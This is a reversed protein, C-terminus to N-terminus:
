PTHHNFFLHILSHTFSSTLIYIHHTPPNSPQHTPLHPHNPPPTLLPSFLLVSFPPPTLSHPNSFSSLLTLEVCLLLEIGGVTHRFCRPAHRNQAHRSRRGFRFRTQFHWIGAVFRVISIFLSINYTPPFLFILHVNCFLFRFLCTNTNTLFFFALFCFMLNHLNSVLNLFLIKLPTGSASLTDSIRQTDAPRGM